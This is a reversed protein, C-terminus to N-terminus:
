EEVFGDFWPGWLKTRMKSAPKECTSSDSERDKCHAQADAHSLGFEITDVGHNAYFRVIKYLKV